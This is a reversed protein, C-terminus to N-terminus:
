SFHPFRVTQAINFMKREFKSLEEYKKKEILANCSIKVPGLLPCVPILCVPSFNTNKSGRLLDAPKVFKTNKVTSINYLNVFKVNELIM